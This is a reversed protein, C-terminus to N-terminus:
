LADIVIANQGVFKEQFSGGMSYLILVGLRLSSLRSEPTPIFPNLRYFCFPTLRRREPPTLVLFVTIVTHGKMRM